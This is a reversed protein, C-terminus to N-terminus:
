PRQWDADCPFTTGAAFARMPFSGGVAASGAAILIGNIFDRRQIKDNRLNNAMVYCGGRYANM